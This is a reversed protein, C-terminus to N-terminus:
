AAKPPPYPISSPLMLVQQGSTKAPYFSRSHLAIRFAYEPLFDENLFKLPQRKVPQQEDDDGTAVEFNEYALDERADQLGKVVLLGSDLRESFIDYRKGHYIIESKGQRSFLTRSEDLEDVPILLIETEETLLRVEMKVQASAREIFFLAHVGLINFLFIVLLLFVGARQM